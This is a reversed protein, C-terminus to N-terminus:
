VTRREDAVHVTLIESGTLMSFRLTMNAYEDRSLRTIKYTHDAQRLSLRLTLRYHPRVINWTTLANLFSWIDGIGTGVRALFATASRDISPSSEHQEVYLGRRALGSRLDLLDQAAVPNSVQYTFRVDHLGRQIRGASKPGAPETVVATNM